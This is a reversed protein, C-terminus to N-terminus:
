DWDLQSTIKRFTSQSIIDEELEEPTAYQLYLEYVYEDFDVSPTKGLYSKQNKILNLVFEKDTM